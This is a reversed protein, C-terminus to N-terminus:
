KMKVPGVDGEGFPRYIVDENSYEDAGIDYNERIQGDIDYDFDKLRRIQKANDIAPSESDLHYVGFEDISMGPEAWQYGSDPIDGADGQGFLLNGYFEPNDPKKSFTICKKEDSIVINNAVTINTAPFNNNGYVGFDINPGQNYVLTNYAVLCNTPQDYTNQGNALDERDGNGIAITSYAPKMLGDVSFQDNNYLYNGVIEQNDGYFRIGGNGNLIFNNEVRCSDGHRLVIAGTCNRLTNRRVTLNTSKVSIVEVDGNCNEFLNEEIIAYSSYNQRDSDGYRIAEGGNEGTFYHGRFHNHDITVNKAISKEPGYVVIFCGENYKKKFENHDIRINHTPGEGAIFLWYNKEGQEQLNFTCNTVRMYQSDRIQFSKAEAIQSLYFGDIVLNTCHKFEFNGKGKIEAGGVSEAKIVIWDDKAGQVGEIEIADAANYKGDKLIIKDGPSANNISKQLDNLNDVRISTGAMVIINILFIVFVITKKM